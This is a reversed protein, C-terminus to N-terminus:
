EGCNFPLSVEVPSSPGPGVVKAIVTLTTCTDFYVLFSLYRKGNEGLTLVPRTQTWAKGGRGNLQVKFKRDQKRWYTGYPDGSVEVVVQVADVQVQNWLGAFGEAFVNEKSFEGKENDFVYGEVSSVQPKAQAHGVGSWLVCVFLFGLFKSM